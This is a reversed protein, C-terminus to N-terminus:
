DNLMMFEDLINFLRILIYELAEKKTFISYENMLEDTMENIDEEAIPYGINKKLYKDLDVESMSNFMSDKLYYQIYTWQDLYNQKLYEEYSLDDNLAAEELEEKTINISNLWDNFSYEFAGLTIMEELTESSKNDLYENKFQEYDKPENYNVTAYEELGLYEKTLLKAIGKVSVSNLSNCGKFINKMIPVNNTMSPIEIIKKCNLFTGYMTIAGKPFNQVTELNECYAFTGNMNKVSDPINPTEKLSSCLLFTGAMDVVGNPIEPTKELSNCNAFTLTLTTVTDPIEPAIRLDSIGGFTSLMSVVPYFKGNKGIYQPVTGEIKGDVIKGLYSPAVGSGIGGLLIWGKQDETQHRTSISMM